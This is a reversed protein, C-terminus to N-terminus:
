VLSLAPERQLGLRNMVIEACIRAGDCSPYTASHTLSQLAQLAKEGDKEPDECLVGLGAREVELANLKQEVHDPIPVVIMPKRRAICESISSLGGQVVVAGFRDIRPRGEELSSGQLPTFRNREAWEAVAKAGIGSGGPLFGVTSQDAGAAPQERYERRVILPIRRLRPEGSPRSDFSPILVESTFLKQTWSDMWEGLLLSLWQRGNRPLFRRARAREVVDHAQGLSIAPIGRGIFPVFHYDSDHLVLDPRGSRIRRSITACNRWYNGLIAKAKLPYYPALRVLEFGLEEAHRSLFDAGIGWSFVTIELGEPPCAARLSQLIACIRTSNGLGLGAALIFFRRKM